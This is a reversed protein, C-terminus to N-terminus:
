LLPKIVFDYLLSAVISAIIGSIFGKWFVPEKLFVQEKINHVNTTPNIINGSETVNSNEINNINM